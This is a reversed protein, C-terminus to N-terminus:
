IIYMANWHKVFGDPCNDAPKLTKVCVNKKRELLEERTVWINM